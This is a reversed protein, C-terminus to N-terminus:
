IHCLLSENFFLPYFMKGFSHLTSFFVSWWSSKSKLQTIHESATPDIKWIGLLYFTRMRLIDLAMQMWSFVPILKSGASPFGFCMGGVFIVYLLRLFIFSLTWFTMQRYYYQTGEIEQWNVAVEHIDMKFVEGIYLLEIDFVRFFLWHLATSASHALNESHAVPKSLAGGTRICNLTENSAGKRFRHSM